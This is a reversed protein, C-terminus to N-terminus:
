QKGEMKIANDLSQLKSIFEKRNLFCSNLIKGHAKMRICFLDKGSDGEAAIVELSEGCMCQSTMEFEKIKSNM